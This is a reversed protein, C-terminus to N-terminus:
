KCRYVRCVLRMNHDLRAAAYPCNQPDIIIFSVAGGWRLALLGGPEHFLVSLVEPPSTRSHLYQRSQMDPHPRHSRRLVPLAARHQTVIAHAPDRELGPLDPPTLRLTM